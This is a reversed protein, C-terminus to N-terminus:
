FEDENLWFLHKFNNVLITMKLYNTKSSRYSSEKDSYIRADKPNKRLAKTYQHIGTEFYREKYTSNELEKERLYMFLCSQLNTSFRSSHSKEVHEVERLFISKSVKRIRM